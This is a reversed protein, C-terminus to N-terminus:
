RNGPLAAEVDSMQLLGDRLRVGQVTIASLATNFESLERPTFTVGIAGLNEDLHM